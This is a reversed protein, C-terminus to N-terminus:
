SSAPQYLAFNSAIITGGEDVALGVTGTSYTSDNAQGVLQNNVYFTFHSGVVSVDVTTTGSVNGSLQGNTLETSAGTHNDYVYSSWTGNSHILFSYVGQLNGPQNRFYIGYDASSLSTLQVQIVYNDPYSQGPIGTLFTGELYAAQQTNRIKTGTSSCSISAGNFNNWQGITDCPGPNSTSYLLTGRSIDPTSQPPVTATSPASTAHPSATPGVTTTSQGAPNTGGNQRNIFLGALVGGVVLLLVILICLFIVWTQPRQTSAQPPYPTQTQPYQSFPMAASQNLPTAPERASQTIATPDILLPKASSLVTPLSTRPSLITSTDDLTSSLANRFAQELAGASAFRDDRKKALAVRIVEDIAPPINPVLQHLLPPYEQLHEHAIAYFTNGTFPVQGSLIQFLIIGLAYTDARQDVIEGRFMEPSMYEPTGLMTGRNTLTMTLRQDNAQIMRAIGFDALVLRGDAHLLFNGPKLDRHIVNHSHAYDLAVSAQQLLVEAEQLTVPGKHILLDRLSGGSIYPMVLYAFGDQEDYEYIPIINAHDLKAIVDAERRFRILFEQYLQSNATISPMLVKVAVSRSPRVQQALFVAGMGGEGILRHLTCTGLTKGILPPNHSM